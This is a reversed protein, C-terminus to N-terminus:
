HAGAASATATPNKTRETAVALRSVLTEVIQLDEKTFFDERVSYLGLVAFVGASGEIPVRWLLIVSISQPTAIGQPAPVSEPTPILQPAAACGNALVLLL